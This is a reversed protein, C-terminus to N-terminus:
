YRGRFLLYKSNSIHDCRISVSILWGFVVLIGFDFMAAKWLEACKYTATALLDASAPSGKAKPFLGEDSTDAIRKAACSAIWDDRSAQGRGLNTLGLVLALLSMLLVVRSLYHLLNRRKQSPYKPETFAFVGILGCMGLLIDFIPYLFRPGSVLHYYTVSDTALDFISLMGRLALIIGLVTGGKAVPICCCCFKLYPLMVRPPMVHPPHNPETRTPKPTRPLRFRPPLPPSSTKYTHNSSLS